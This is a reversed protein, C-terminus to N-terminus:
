RVFFRGWVVDAPSSCGTLVLLTSMGCAKGFLVDSDLRDGIMCTRAQTLFICWEPLLCETSVFVGVVKDYGKTKILHHGLWGSPKGIIQPPMGVCAEIGRLVAVYWSLPTLVTTYVTSTVHGAAGTMAPIRRDSLTDFSDQSTALFLCGPNKQLCLCAYAIKSYSLNFDFGCVVAGIAPDPTLATYDSDSQVVPISDGFV